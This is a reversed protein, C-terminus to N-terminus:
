NVVRFKRFFDQEGPTLQLHKNSAANSKCKLWLPFGTSAGALISLGSASASDAASGLSDELVIVQSKLPSRETM